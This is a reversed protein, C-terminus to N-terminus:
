YDCLFVPSHLVQDRWFSQNLNHFDPRELLIDGLQRLSNYMIHVYKEWIAPSHLSLERYFFNVCDVFIKTYLPGKKSWYPTSMLTELSLAGMYKGLPGCWVFTRKLFSVTTIDRWGGLDGKTDSTMQFGLEAVKQSILLPTFVDSIEEKASYINDDGLVVLVVDKNFTASRVERPV